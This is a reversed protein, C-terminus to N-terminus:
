PDLGVDSLSLDALRELAPPNFQGREWDFTVREATVTVIELPVGYRARYDNRVGRLAAMVQGGQAPIEEGAAFDEAARLLIIPAGPIAEVRATVDIGGIEFLVRGTRRFEEPANETNSYMPFNSLLPEVEVASVSVLAQQAALAALLVMHWTRLPVTTSAPATAGGGRDLLPWPLLAVFLMLWPEWVVGQFIYFGVFLSFGAVGVACRRWPSRVFIVGIFLAEATIVGLSLLVAVTPHSAVWLGWEVPAAAADELFHYKVAGSTIWALGSENLKAYAAAALGLGLMFGPIWIALGYHAGARVEEPPRRALRADLSFGDGWPVVTLAFLTPMALDWDHMGAGQLEVLRSVFIGVVLVVYAPRTWRGVIFLVAMVLTIAQLVLCATASAAVAHVPSWDALWSLPRHADLPRAFPPDNFVVYLLVLGFVVRFQGLTRATLSPVARALMSRWLVWLSMPVGWLFVPVRPVASLTAVALALVLLHRPGQDSAWRGLGPFRPSVLRPETVSADASVRFRQRDVFHTDAVDPHMVLAELNSRGTDAITYKWAPPDHAFVTLGFRRELISRQDLSLDARWRVNIISLGDVVLLPRAVGVGVALLLIAGSAWRLVSAAVRHPRNTRDSMAGWWGM